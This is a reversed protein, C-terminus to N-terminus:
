VDFIVRTKWHKIKKVVKIENFTVAKIVSKIKHQVPNIIEGYVHGRLCFDPLFAIKFQSLLINKTEHLYILENLWNVLLSEDDTGEIDLSFSASITINKLDAIISFMGLAANEFAEEKTKGFSEIGIDATHEIIKFPKM